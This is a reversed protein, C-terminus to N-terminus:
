AAASRRHMESRQLERAIERAVDEPHTSIMFHAAGEVTVLSAGGISRALLENVRLMAPHSRSGRMVLTPVDIAKLRASTLSFGYVDAWDLINTQTTRVAYNRV